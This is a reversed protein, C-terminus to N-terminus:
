GYDEIRRSGQTPSENESKIKQPSKRLTNARIPTASFSDTDGRRHNVNEAVLMVRTAYKADLLVYIVRRVFLRMRTPGSHLQM